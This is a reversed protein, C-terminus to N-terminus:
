LSLGAKGFIVQTDYVVIKLKIKLTNLYLLKLTGLAEQKSVGFIVLSKLFTLRSSGLPEKKGQLSLVSFKNHILCLLQSKWITYLM